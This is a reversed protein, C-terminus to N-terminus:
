IIVAEVKFGWKREVGLLKSSRGRLLGFLSGNHSNAANFCCRDFVSLLNVNTFDISLFDRAATDWIKTQYYDFGLAIM